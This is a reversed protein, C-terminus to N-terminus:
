IVINRAYVIDETRVEAVQLGRHLTQAWVHVIETHHTDLSM